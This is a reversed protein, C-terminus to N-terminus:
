CLPRDDESQEMMEWCGSLLFISSKEVFVDGQGKIAHPRMLIACVSLVMEAHNGQSGRNYAHRAWVENSPFPQCKIDERQLRRYDYCCNPTPNMQLERRERTTWKWVSTIHKVNQTHSLQRQHEKLFCYFLLNSCVSVHFSWKCALKFLISFFFFSFLLMKVPDVDLFTM